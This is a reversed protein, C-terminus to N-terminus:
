QVIEIEVDIEKDRSFFFFFFPPSTTLAIPSIRLVLLCLKEKERPKLLYGYKFDLKEEVNYNGRTVRRSIVEKVSAVKHLQM